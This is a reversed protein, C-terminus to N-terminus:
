RRPQRHAAPQSVGKMGDFRLQLANQPAVPASATGGQRATRLNRDGPRPRGLAPNPQEFLSLLYRSFSLVHLTAPLFPNQYRPRGAADALNQPVAQPVTVAKAQHIVARHQRRAGPFLGAPSFEGVEGEDLGRHFLHVGDDVEGAVGVYRRGPFLHELGVDLPGVAEVFGGAALPHLPHNEGAGVVDGPEVLLLPYVGPRLHRRPRVAVVPDALREAFVQPLVVDVLEAELHILRRMPENWGSLDTTSRSPSRMRDVQNLWRSQTCSTQRLM